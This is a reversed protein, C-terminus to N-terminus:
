STSMDTLVGMSSPLNTCLNAFLYFISTSNLSNNKRSFPEFVFNGGQLVKWSLHKTNLYYFYGTPCEGTGGDGDYSTLATGVYITDFGLKAMQESSRLRRLTDLYGYLGGFNTATTVGMDPNTNADGGLTMRFKHLATLGAESGIDSYTTDDVKNQAWTNGSRAQGGITGTTPTASIISQISEPDNAGPSSAM